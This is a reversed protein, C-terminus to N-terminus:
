NSVDPDTTYAYAEVLADNQGMRIRMTGNIGWNRGYNNLLIWFPEHGPSEDWGILEISHNGADVNEMNRAMYIGSRYRSLWAPSAICVSLPGHQILERKLNTVGEIHRTSRRQARYLKM